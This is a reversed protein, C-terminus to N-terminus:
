LSAAKVPAPEPAPQNRSFRNLVSVASKLYDPSLHAYRQTMKLSSHGLLKMVSYLDVGSMVLRSAFTHRLDHWRFEQIGAQKLYDEWYKPLDKQRDGPLEGVFVYPNNILRVRSLKQLCERLPESMPIIRTKKSKTTAGRATVQGHKFDIDRWELSFMETKRLGTHLAVIAMGHYKEPLTAFLRTEEEETLYRVRANDEHNLKVGKCPDRDIKHNRVALSFVAKITALYRNVSAPRLGKATLAAKGQEIDKEVISRAARDGLWMRWWFLQRVNHSASRLSKAVEMRDNIIEEVSARQHKGKVEEPTFKDFRIETKRQQYKAIATSKMGVKERHERGHQDAYRIWWIGSCKPREFIGRQKKVPRAM